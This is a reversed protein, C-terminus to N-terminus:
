IENLEDVEESRCSRLTRKLPAQLRTLQIGELKM